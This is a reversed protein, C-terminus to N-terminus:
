SLFNILVNLILAVSFHVLAAPLFSRFRLSLSCLIFSLVFAFLIELPPKTLHFFAFILSCVWFSHYKLKPWLGFFLFGRFLFEEAFYYLAPLFVAAFLFYGPTKESVSLFYYTRFQETRSLFIMLPSFLFIVLGSFVLAKNKQRPFCFGFDALKNKFVYKVFLIPLLFMGLLAESAVVLPLLGRWSFNKLTGYFFFYFSSIAVFILTFVVIRLPSIEAKKEM